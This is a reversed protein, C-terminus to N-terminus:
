EALMVLARRLVDLPAAEARRQLQALLAARDGEPLAAVPEAGPASSRRVAAAVGDLALRIRDDTERGAWRQYIRNVEPSHGCWEAIAGVPVGYRAAITVFTTRLCHFGRRSVARKRGDMGEVVQIGCEEFLARALKSVAQPDRAYLAALEPMIYGKDTPPRQLKDLEEAIVPLLMISVDRGTKATTKFLRGGRINEWRLTVADGLRLGTFIGILVLLRPEGTAAALIREIDPMDLADRHESREAQRRVAAFPNPEVGAARFMVRCVEIRKNHGRPGLRAADLCYRSYEAADEPTVDEVTQATPKFEALWDMFAQWTNSNGAAVRPKLARAVSGRTGFTYPHRAWVDALALRPRIADQVVALQTELDAAKTALARAKVVEDTVAIPAIIADRKKEAERRVTTGLSTQVRQGNATYKLWYIGGRQYITGTTKRPM